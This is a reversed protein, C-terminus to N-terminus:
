PRPEEDSAEDQWPTRMSALSGALLASASLLLSRAAPSGIAGLPLAAASVIVPMVVQMARNAMMRLGLAAGRDSAAVTSVVWTMSLPQVLGLCFGIAAMAAFAVTLDAVSVAGIGLGGILLSVTILTRRSFRVVLAHMGIRSVLSMTGRVGLLAAVATPSLSREQAWLPLFVALLDLCALTVGSLVVAARMGRIRLIGLIPLAKTARRPRGTRRTLRIGSIFAGISVVCSLGVLLLLGADAIGSLLGPVALALAPGAVQGASTGASLWGFAVDLGARTSTAAVAAQAAVVMLIQICGFVVAVALLTATHRVVLAAAIPLPAIISMMSLVRGAGFRDVIRGAPVALLLAGVAFAAALLGVQAASAGVRLALYGALPRFGHDVIALGATIGVLSWPVGRGFAM